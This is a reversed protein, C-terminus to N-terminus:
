LYATNQATKHLLPLVKPKVYQVHKEYKLNEVSHLVYQAYMRVLVVPIPLAGSDTSFLEDVM